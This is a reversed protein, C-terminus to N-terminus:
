HQRWRTSGPSRREGNVCVSEPLLVRVWPQQEERATVHGGDEVVDVHEVELGERPRRGARRAMRGRRARAM